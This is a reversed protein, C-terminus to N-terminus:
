IFLDLSFATQNRFHFVERHVPITTQKNTRRLPFVLGVFVLLCHLSPPQFVVDHYLDALCDRCGMPTSYQVGLMMQYLWGLKNALGLRAFKMRQLLLWHSSSHYVRLSFCVHNKPHLAACKNPQSLVHPLPM